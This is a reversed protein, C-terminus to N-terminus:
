TLSEEGWKEFAVPPLELWPVVIAVPWSWILNPILPLGYYIMGGYQGSASFLLMM